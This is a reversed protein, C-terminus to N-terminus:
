LSLDRIRSTRINHMEVCAPLREVFVSVLFDDLAIRACDCAVQLGRKKFLHNELAITRPSGLTRDFDNLLSRSCYTRGCGVTTM